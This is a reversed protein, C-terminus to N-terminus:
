FAPKYAMDFRNTHLRSVNRPFARDPRVAEPHESIRKITRAILESLRHGRNVLLAGLAQKMHSLARSHNVQYTHRRKQTQEDVRAQAALSMLATLNTALIKAYFDQQVSLLSKGSFNEIEIRMKLLKYAEEVGWRQHYLGKFDEAPYRVEDLLDTVLVEVEDPLEVRILRLRVPADSLAKDQCTKRASANPHFELWDQAKGSDVFRALVDHRKPAGRLCFHRNHQRHLAYFWFAGYGRDYLILDDKRSFALHEQALDREPSHAPALSADIILRNLVDFFVSGTALPCAVDPQNGGHVGFGDRVEPSDPLRLTTGDVACLRHGKWHNLAVPSDYVTEVLADNLDIFTDFALQKRAQFFASQTVSVGIGDPALQDFFADLEIQASRTRLNLM